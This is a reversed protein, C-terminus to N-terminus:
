KYIIMKHHLKLKMECYHKAKVFVKEAEEIDKLTLAINGHTKLVWYYVSFSNDEVKVVDHISTLIGYLISKKYYWIEKENKIETCYNTDHSEEPELAKIKDETEPRDEKDCTMRIVRAKM